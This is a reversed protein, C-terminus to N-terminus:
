AKARRSCLASKEDERGAREGVLRWGDKVEGSLGDFSKRSCVAKMGGEGRM